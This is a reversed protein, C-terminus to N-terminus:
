GTVNAKDKPKLPEQCLCKFDSWFVIIGISTKTKKKGKILKMTKVLEQRLRCISVFSIRKIHPPAKTSKSFVTESLYCTKM